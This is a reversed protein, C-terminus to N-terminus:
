EPGGQGGSRTGAALLLSAFQAAIARHDVREPEVTASVVTGAGVALILAAMADPSVWGPIADDALLEAIVAALQSRLNRWIQAVPSSADPDRATHVFVELLGPARDRQQEFTESLTNVAQLLRTAPDGSGALLELVPQTWSRLEEALAAAVLHEKSGFYYTIAGLNAGAVDAISRSSTHALGRSRLCAQTAELLQARTGTERRDKSRRQATTIMRVYSLRIAPRGPPM